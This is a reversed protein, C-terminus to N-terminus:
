PNYVQALSYSLWYSTTYLTVGARPETLSELVTKELTTLSSIYCCTDRMQAYGSCGKSFEKRGERAAWEVNSGIKLFVKVLTYLTKGLSLLM